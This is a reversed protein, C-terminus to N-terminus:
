ELVFALLLVGGAFALFGLALDVVEGGANAVSDRACDTTRNRPQRTIPLGLRRRLISM